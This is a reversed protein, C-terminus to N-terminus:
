CGNNWSEGIGGNNPCVTTPFVVNNPVCRQQSCLTTPFVVDNPFCRRQSCTVSMTLCMTLCMTVFAASVHRRSCQLYSSRAATLSRSSGLPARSPANARLKSWMCAVSALHRGEGLLPTGGGVGMLKGAPMAERVGWSSSASCSCLRSRYLLTSVCPM